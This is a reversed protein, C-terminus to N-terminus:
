DQRDGTFLCKAPKHGTSSHSAVQKGDVTISCSIEATVGDAYKGLVMIKNLTSDAPLALEETFPLTKTSMGSGGEKGESTVTVTEILADGRTGQVSLTVLRQATTAAAESGAVDPAQASCATLSIGLLVM